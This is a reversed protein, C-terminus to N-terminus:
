SADPVGPLDGAHSFIGMEGGLVGLDSSFGRLVRLSVFFVLSGHPGPARIDQGAIDSIFRQFRYKETDLIMAAKRKHRAAGFTKAGMFLGLRLKLSREAM